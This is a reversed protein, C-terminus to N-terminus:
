DFTIDETLYKWNQKRKISGVCEASVGFLNGIEKQNKEKELLLQIIILVDAERLKSANNKEGKQTALKLAYKHKNNESATCWELNSLHNNEKNGDKHNVQLEKMNPIPVFNELVLRHVSYAHRRNDTSMLQVKEYGDKDLYIRLFKKSIDSYVKGDETIYYDYKLERKANVIKIM